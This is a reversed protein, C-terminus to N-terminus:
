LKVLEVRGNLSKGSDDTNSTVPSLEGIGQAVVQSARVSYKSVLIDKVARARRNSLLLNFSVSGVSDTHGVIAFRKDKNSNVLRSLSILAEQSTSNLKYSGTDFYIGEIAVRGDKEITRLQDQTKIVVDFRHNTPSSVMDVQTRVQGDIEAIYFAVYENNSPRNLKNPDISKKQAALYFQNDSHEGILPTLYLQWASVDGCSENQCTFIESYGNAKVSKRIQTYVNIASQNASYDYIERDVKGTLLMSSELSYGRTLEDTEEEQYKPISTLLTYNDQVKHWQKFLLVNEGVHLLREQAGLFASSNFVFCVALMSHILSHFKINKYM